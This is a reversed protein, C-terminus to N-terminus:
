RDELVLVRVNLKTDCGITENVNETAIDIDSAFFSSPNILSHTTTILSPVLDTASEGLLVVNAVSICRAVPM